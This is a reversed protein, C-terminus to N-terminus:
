KVILLLKNLLLVNTSLGQPKSLPSMSRRIADRTADCRASGGPIKKKKLRNEEEPLQSVLVPTDFSHYQEPFGNEMGLFPALPSKQEQAESKKPIGSLVKKRSKKKGEPKLTPPMLVKGQWHLQPLSPTQRSSPHDRGWCGGAADRQQSPVEGRVLM